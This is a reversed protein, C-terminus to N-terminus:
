ADGDPRYWGNTGSAKAAMRIDKTNFPKRANAAKNIAPILKESIYSEIAEDSPKARADALKALAEIRRVELEKLRIEAEVVKPWNIQPYEPLTSRRHPLPTVIADVISDIWSM